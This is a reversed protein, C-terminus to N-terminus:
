PIRALLGMKVVNKLAERKSLPSLRERHAQVYRVVERPNTWAYQRLAWGIAKRLFFETSDLSPEICAYLLKLDTDTKYSLQCIISTRRKWTDDCRSWALMAERLERPHQRLLDGIRHSAIDDVYDWWAGTVIMEEYMPLAEPTQYAAARQHGSLAIAGYREERHTAHRWIGLVDRQWHAASPLDHDAFVRRFIRRAEPLHVGHYPMASKMYAQMQPAKVPDGAAALATRLARLLLTSM